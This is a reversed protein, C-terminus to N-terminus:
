IRCAGASGQREGGTYLLKKYLAKGDPASAGHRLQAVTLWTDAMLIDIDIDNRM